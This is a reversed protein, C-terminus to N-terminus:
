RKARRAIIGYGKVQPGLQVVMRWSPGHGDILANVTSGAGGSAFNGSGFGPLNALHRVEFPKVKGWQWNGPKGYDKLLKDVTVNFSRSLVDVVNEKMSTNKSDFWVSNPDKLLLEETRDM